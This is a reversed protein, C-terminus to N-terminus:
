LRDPRKLKHLAARVEDVYARDAPELRLPARAPKVMRFGVVSDKGRELADHMHQGLREDLEALPVEPYVLEWARASREPGREQSLAQGFQGFRRRLRKGEGHWLYHILAWSTAYYSREWDGHFRGAPAAFLEAVHILHGNAAESAAQLHNSGFMVAGERVMISETYTAFGENFWIPPSHYTAAILGHTLEHAATQDVFEPDVGDYIVLIGKNHGMGHVFMGGIPGLLDHFDGDGLLLVEMPPVSASDFLSATLGVHVDELHDLVPEYTRRGLDTYLRFHETSALKWGPLDHACGAALAAVALIVVGGAMSQRHRM